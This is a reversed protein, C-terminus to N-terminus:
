ILGIEKAKTVAQQRNEVDLKLLINRVHTKVTNLSIFLRDAIDKNILNEAVLKLTELERSSLDTETAASKYNEVKKLVSKLKNMYETPINTKNLSQLKYVETFLHKSEDYDTICFTFIGEVSALELACILYEVAKAKDNSKRYFISYLINLEVLAGTRKDKSTFEDLRLLLGEAQDLQEKNLYLLILSYYITENQVTIEDAPSLNLEKVFDEAIEIKDYKISIFIKWTVYTPILFPSIKSKEIIKDIELVKAVTDEQDYRWYSNYSYSLLALLYHSHNKQIDSLKIATNGYSLGKEFNGMFTEIVSLMSFLGSYTWESKTINSVGKSKFFDLLNYCEKYALKYYGFQQNCYAIALAITSILYYNDTKKGYQLAKNFSVLSQKIKGWTMEANGISYWAWSFWITDDENLYKIANESYKLIKESHMDFSYVFAFAVSIKGYLKYYAKIELESLNQNDILNLIYIETNTLLREAKPHDGRTALIWSYYLCFEPNDSILDNPLLAGYKLIESHRGEEWMNSVALNLLQISKEYNNIELSHKIAFDYLNSKEFWECAKNHLKEVEDKQEILLRQRLLDAFLHHYRFWRRERDLPFIFMNSKELMEIMEQSNNIDLLSDCLESSLRELISTKLLFDKVEPSQIKLVEEILYDIIYRNNGAFQEIFSSVDTQGQISLGALQLGAIWGETKKELSLLDVASLKLKFKKTFLDSIENISFSLDESRLETLQFNSRLKALSLKPDSRTIIVLHLNNPMFELLYSLLNNIEDNDIFHYDDLVLHIDQKVNYVDNILLNIISEFSPPNSSRLLELIDLGFDTEVNRIAHVIYSLFNNVDNDRKDISFWAATVDKKNVWESCITSKGFGAQASILILKKKRGSDLQDVIKPRSVLDNDNLPIQLKTLLM